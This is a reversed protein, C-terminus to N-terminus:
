CEDLRIGQLRKRTIAEGLSQFSLDHVTEFQVIITAAFDHSFPQQFDGSDDAVPVNVEVM